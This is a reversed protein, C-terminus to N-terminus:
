LLGKISKISNKHDLLKRSSHQRKKTAAFAPKRLSLPSNTTRREIIDTAVEEDEVMSWNAMRCSYDSTFMTLSCASRGYSEYIINKPITDNIFNISFICKGEMLIHIKFTMYFYHKRLFVYRIFVKGSNCTLLEGVDETFPLNKAEVGDYEMSGEDLFLTATFRKPRFTSIVQIILPNYDMLRQNTAFSVFSCEPEPTIHITFHTPGDLGNMSYGCPDFM